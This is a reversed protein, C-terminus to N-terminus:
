RTAVNLLMMMLGGTELALAILGLSFWRLRQEIVDRNAITFQGFWLALERHIEELAMPDDEREVFSGVVTGSDLNITAEVPRWSLVTAVVVLVLGLGGVVLWGVGCWDLRINNNRSTLGLALTAFVAAATMLSGARDRAEKLVTAQDTVAARGLDYTLRYTEPDSNIVVVVL